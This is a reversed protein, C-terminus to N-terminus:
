ADFAAKYSARALVAGLDVTVAFRTMQVGDLSIDYVLTAVLTSAPTASYLCASAKCTLDPATTSPSLPTAAGVRMTGSLSIVATHGGAKYTGTTTGLTAVFDSALTKFTSLTKVTSTVADYYTL